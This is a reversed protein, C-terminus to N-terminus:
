FMYIIRYKIIYYIINIRICIYYIVVAYITYSLQMYLIRGYICHMNYTYCIYYIRIVIIRSVMYNIYVCNWFYQLICVSIFMYCVYWIMYM